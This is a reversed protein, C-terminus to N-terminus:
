KPSLTITTDGDIIFGYLPSSSWSSQAVKEHLLILTKGSCTINYNTNFYEEFAVVAQNNDSPIPVPLYQTPYYGGSAYTHWGALLSYHDRGSPIGETAGVYAMCSLNDEYIVEVTVVSGGSAIGNEIKNMASATITDGTTWTTPTYAM